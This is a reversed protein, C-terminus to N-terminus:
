QTLERRADATQVVLLTRASDARATDQRLEDLQKMTEHEHVGAEGLHITRDDGGDIYVAAAV